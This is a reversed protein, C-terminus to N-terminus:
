YVQRPKLTKTENDILCKSQKITCKERRTCDVLWDSSFGQDACGKVYAKYTVCEM